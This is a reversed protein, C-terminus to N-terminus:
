GRFRLPNRGALLEQPIGPQFEDCVIDTPSRLGTGWQNGFPVDSPGGDFFENIGFSNGTCKGNGPLLGTGAERVSRNLRGVAVPTEGARGGIRGPEM